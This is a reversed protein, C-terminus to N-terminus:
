VPLGGVVPHCREADCFLDSLDVRSVGEPAGPGAADFAPDDPLAVSRPVSCAEVNGPNRALCEPGWEGGTTPHDRVVLVPAVRTLEAWTRHYGALGVAPDSWRSEVFATSVILDPDLALVDDVVRRSWDGCEAVDRPGGLWVDRGSLNLPCAGQTYLAIGYGRPALLASMTHYLVGAHSDGVVAVVKEPREGDWCEPDCAVGAWPSDAETVPAVLPEEFPNGCEDPHLVAPAGLCPDSALQELRAQQAADEARQTVQAHGVAAGVLVAMAVGAAVFTSVPRAARMRGTLFPQEVWRRSAEALVGTAVMIALKEPWTLAHGTVFPVLAILPWHWLYVSYSVDGLWQVPRLADLPALPDRPGTDGAVIVAATGLVPALAVAGPFPTAQSILLSTAIIAALGGWRLALAFGATPVWRSLFFSTMAGIAFEWVRTTTVFYAAAPDAATLVVSHVLSALTLTGLM